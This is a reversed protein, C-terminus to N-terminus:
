ITPSIKEPSIGRLGLDGKSSLLKKIIQDQDLQKEEKLMNIHSILRLNRRSYLEIEGKKILYGNKIFEGEKFLTYGNPFSLDKFSRCIRDKIIKSCKGLSPLAQTLFSLREKYEPTQAM